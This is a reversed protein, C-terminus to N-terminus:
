GAAASAHSKHIISSSECVLYYLLDKTTPPTSKRQQLVSYAMVHLPFKVAPLARLLTNSWPITGFAESLGLFKEGLKRFDDPDEGKEMFNFLGGFAFDGMFDLAMYAAWAALDIQKGDHESLYKILESVRAQLMPEYSKLASPTFARDWLRRRKGHQVPDILSLLSPIVGEPLGIISGSHHSLTSYIVYNKNLSVQTRRGCTEPVLSLLSPVHMVSCYTIPAQASLM